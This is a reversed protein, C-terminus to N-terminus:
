GGVPKARLFPLYDKARKKLIGREEFRYGLVIRFTNSANTFLIQEFRINRSQNVFTIGGFVHNSNYGLSARVDAFSNVTIDDHVKDDGSRYNIWHHAPGVSLSVNLFLHKYIVTHSYGPALSFTTYRLTSFSSRLSTLREFSKTMVSSDANLQFTNITGTMTWSGHSRLQRESFNYASRLSFKQHNFVYIGNLGLNRVEIDPRQPYIKTSTNQENSRYFGSYNQHFVDMGWRKGLINAQLDRAHSRGFQTISKDTLPVSFALEFGIEFLYVGLGLQASTNPKYILSPGKGSREKLDFSLSRQKIVPWIFFHDPYSKIFQNKTSDQAFTSGALFFLLVLTGLRGVRWM